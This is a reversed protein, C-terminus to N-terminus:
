QEDTTIKWLVGSNLFPVAQKGQHLMVGFDVVYLAAGDPSFRVAVPRELGGGGGLSAPANKGGRNVAFDEIVGTNVNVRVVKFGVPHLVKGTIPTEDGFLAVFADGAHGFSPGRSFDFGNASSHVGFRAAPVPPPNPHTALLFEPQVKGPPRFRRDTLAEGAAFDPWGYWVGPQIRWLVDPAGWVPRSGRNDYANDTAYLAGDPSFALGFPNRLGWAVLELAGSGPNFRLVAGSCKVRGPITQGPQISTGFPAFAGTTALAQKQPSFPDNSTFNLGTLTIDQGPIDHWHPRRTLWGFEANDEGVVGANTATGQGFYVWGDPGALAGNTHHDGGPLDDVVTTFEGQPTIRLLRGGHLAGGETVYFSGDHFAVGTWPGNDGGAAITTLVGGPDVRLLRPITWVEGYSYGSEVLYIRGSEDFTLGTPFSLGQVVAEIRYGTPLAIDAIQIRRPPQFDTEGGGRSPRLAYCGPLSLLAFCLVIHTLCRGLDKGRVAGSGVRMRYFTALVKLKSGGTFLRFAVLSFGSM